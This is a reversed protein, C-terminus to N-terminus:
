NDSFAVGEWGQDQRSMPSFVWHDKPGADRVLLHLSQKCGLKTSTVMVLLFNHGLMEYWKEKLVDRFFQYRTGTARWIEGM